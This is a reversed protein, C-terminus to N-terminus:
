QSFGPEALKKLKRRFIGEAIVAGFGSAMSIAVIIIISESRTLKGEYELMGINPSAIAVIAASGLILLFRIAATDDAARKVLGRVKDIPWTALIPINEIAWEARRDTPTKWDFM